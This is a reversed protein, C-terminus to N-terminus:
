EATERMAEARLSFRLPRHTVAQLTGERVMEQAERLLHHEPVGSLPPLAQLEKLAFAGGRGLITELTRRLEAASSPPRLPAAEEPLGGQARLRAVHNLGANIFEQELPTLDSAAVIAALDDLTAHASGFGLLAGPPVRLVEAIQYLSRLNMRRGDEFDKLSAMSLHYGRSRMGECVERRSRSAAKRAELLREGIVRYLDLSVVEM